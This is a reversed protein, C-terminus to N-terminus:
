RWLPYEFAGCALLLAQSPLSEAAMDALEVWVHALSTVFARSASLQEQRTSLQLQVVQYVSPHFRMATRFAPLQETLFTIEVFVDLNM